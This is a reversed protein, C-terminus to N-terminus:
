KDGGGMVIRLGALAALFLIVSSILGSNSVLAPFVGSTVSAREGNAFIFSLSHDKYEGNNLKSTDFSFLKQFEKI